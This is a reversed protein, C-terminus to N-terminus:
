RFMNSIEERKSDLENELYIVNALSALAALVAVVRVWTPISNRVFRAVIAAAIVIAVGAWNSGTGTLLSASQMAMITGIVTGALVLLAYLGPTSSDTRASAPGGNMPAIHETWAAGDWYRQTEAM